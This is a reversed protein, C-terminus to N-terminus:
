WEKSLRFVGARGDGCVLGKKRSESSSKKLSAGTVDPMVNREKEKKEEKRKLFFRRLQSKKLAGGSFVVQAVLVDRYRAERRGGSGRGM